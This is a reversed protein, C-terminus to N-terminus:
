GSVGSSILGLLLLVIEIITMVLYIAYLIFATHQMKPVLKGVSPGPSEAKLLNITSGGTMPLIALIFVLVGM